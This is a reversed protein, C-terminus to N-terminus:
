GTPKAATTHKTAALKDPQPLSAGDASGGGLGNAPSGNTSTGPGSPLRRGRLASPLGSSALLVGGTSPILAMRLRLCATTSVM